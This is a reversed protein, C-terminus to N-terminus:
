LNNYSLNQLYEKKSLWMDDLYSTNPKVGKYALSCWLSNGSIYCRRQKFSFRLYWLRNRLIKNLSTSFM